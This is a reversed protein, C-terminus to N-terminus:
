YKICIFIKNLILINFILDYYNINFDWILKKYEIM